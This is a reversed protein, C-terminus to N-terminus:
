RANAILEEGGLRFPFALPHVTRPISAHPRHGVAMNSFRKGGCGYSAVVFLKPVLGDFEDLFEDPHHEKIVIWRSWVTELM